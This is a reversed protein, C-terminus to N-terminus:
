AGRPPPWLPVPLDLLYTVALLILVSAVVTVIIAGPRRGQAPVAVIASALVAACLLGLAPLALGFAIAAALVWVLPGLSAPVTPRPRIVGGIAVIVGLVVLTVSLITPMTGPGAMSGRWGILERADAFALIGVVIFLAGLAADRWRTDRVPTAEDSMVDPAELVFLVM